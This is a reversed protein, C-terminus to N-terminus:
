IPLESARTRGYARGGGCQTSCDARRRPGQAGNLVSDMTAGAPPMALGMNNAPQMNGNNMNNDMGMYAANQPPGAQPYNPVISGAPPAINNGYGNYLGNQGPGTLGQNPQPLGGAPAMNDNIGRQLGDQVPIAQASNVPMPAAPQYMNNENGNTLGSHVPEPPPSSSAAVPYIMDNANGSDMGNVPANQISDSGPQPSVNNVADNAHGDLAQAPLNNSASMGGSQDLGNEIGHQIGKALSRGPSGLLPNNASGGGVEPAQAVPAQVAPAQPAEVPANGVADAIGQAGGGVANAAAPAGAGVTGGVAEAGGALAGAGAGAGAGFIGSIIGAGGAAAGAAAPVGAGVAGGAAQAGGAVAGAVAPAGAGVSGGVAEAGGAAMGAAAPAGAGIAGVAGGAVPAAAPAQPVAGPQPSAPSPPTNCRFLCPIDIADLLGPLNLYTGESEIGLLGLGDIVPLITQIGNLATRLLGNQNAMSEIRMTSFRPPVEAFTPLRPARTIPPITDDDTTTDPSEDAANSSPTADPPSASGPTISAGNSNGAPIAPATSQSSTDVLHSSSAVGGTVSGPTSSYAADSVSASPTAPGNLADPAQVPGRQDANAEIFHGRDIPIGNSAMTPKIPRDTTWTVIITSTIVEQSGVSNIVSGYAPGPPNVPPNPYPGDGVANQPNIVNQASPAINGGIDVNTSGYSAGYAGNNTNESAGDVGNGTVDSYENGAPLGLVNQVLLLVLPISKEYM